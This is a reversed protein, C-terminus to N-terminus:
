FAPTDGELAYVTGQVVGAFAVGDEAKLDYAIEVVWTPGLDPVRLLVTRGDASLTVGDVRLERTNLRDSGYSRTRKLDWATVTFAEPGATAKELPSAYTLEIGSTRAKMGIPLHLPQGTYRIRYLGGVQIMQNTAWASM